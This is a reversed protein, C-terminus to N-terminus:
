FLRQRQYYGPDPPPQPTNFLPPTINLVIPQHLNRKFWGKEVLKDILYSDPDAVGLERLDDALAERPGYQPM